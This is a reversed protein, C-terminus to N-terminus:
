CRMEQSVCGLSRGATGERKEHEVGGCCEGVLVAEVGVNGAEFGPWVGGGGGGVGVEGWAGGLDDGGQALDLMFEFAGDDEGCDWLLGVSVVVVVVVIM